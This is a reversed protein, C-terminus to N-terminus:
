RSKSQDFVSGDQVWQKVLVMEGGLNLEQYGQAYTYNLTDPM